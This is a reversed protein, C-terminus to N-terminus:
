SVDESDPAGFIAAYEKSVAIYSAASDRLEQLERDNLPRIVKAPSGFALSRPPIKMRMPVLSNAGIICESGIEADDLIVSGMGIICSDNIRCGHLIAGHGVTVEEGIVLDNLGRSTHLVANDQVNSRAGIIIRQIDGRISAGFFVSVSEALTVKGTVWANPAIFATPDVLPTHDRFPIVPM